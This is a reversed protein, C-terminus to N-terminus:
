EQGGKEREYRQLYESYTEKWHEYDMIYHISLVSIGDKRKHHQIETQYKM